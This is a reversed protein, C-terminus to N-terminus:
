CNQHAKINKKFKYTVYVWLCLSVVISKINIILINSSYKSFMEVIMLKIPKVTNNKMICDGVRVM